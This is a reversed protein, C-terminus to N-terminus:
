RRRWTRFKSGNTQEEYGSWDARLWDSLDFGPEMFSPQGRRVFVLEPKHAAIDALVFRRLEERRQPSGGPLSWLFVYRSAWGIEHDVMWAFFTHMDTDLVLVTDGPQLTSVAEFEPPIGTFEDAFSLEPERQLWHQGLPLAVYALCGVVLAARAWRATSGFVLVVLGLYGCVLVPYVHNNWGKGQWVAAGLFGLQALSLVRIWSGRRAFVAVVLLGLTVALAERIWPRRMFEGWSIEYSAYVERVLDVNAFFEAQFPVFLFHGAYALVGLVLGENEPRRTDFLRRQRLATGLRVLIPALLLQPKLAFGVAAFLGAGFALKPRVDAGAVRQAVIAFYPLTLITMLHERQGFERGVPVLMVFAIAALALPSSLAGGPVAHLVRRTLLLSCGLLAVVWANFVVGIGLGTWGAFVVPPVNLYVILPPNIEILDSYLGDGELWRNTVFLLWGCDHHIEFPPTLRLCVCAAVLSWIGLQAM